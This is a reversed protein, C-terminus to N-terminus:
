PAPEEVLGGYIAEYGVAVSDWSYDSVRKTGAAALADALAGDGALRRMARALQDIDEPEVLLADVGDTVFEPPGGRSTVILPAGARWAELAAIGFAEFRSPVVAMRAGALLRSVQGRALQGPLEVRDAIGLNEAQRRLVPREPGDGGIVLRMDRPLDARAFAELLLDFGKMRQIRGVAAVYPGPATVAIDDVAEHPDIGNPVIVGRGAAFGFRKELDALVVRAPATVAHAARLAKSLSDRALWSEDFLGADDAITEGHSTVVLPTHTRRALLRAYTGNPGFCHVHIVDPRFARWARRWRLWAAPGALVFRGLARGDRAPLPAPLDWVQVGDHERVGARGDRDITWVVVEHGRDRLRAAVNRVHEEVGGVYPAYSSTALAIRM